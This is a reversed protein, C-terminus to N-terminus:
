RSERDCIFLGRIIKPNILKYSITKNHQTFRIACMRKAIGIQIASLGVATDKHEKVYAFMENLTEKDENSIPLSVEKSIRRLINNPYTIIEMTKEVYM